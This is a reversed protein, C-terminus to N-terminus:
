SGDRRQILRERAHEALMSYASYVNTAAPFALLLPASAYVGLQILNVAGGLGLGAMSGALESRSCSDNIFSYLEPNTQKVQLMEKLFSPARYPASIATKFLSAFSKGFEREEPGSFKERFREKFMNVFNTIDKRMEARVEEKSPQYEKAM